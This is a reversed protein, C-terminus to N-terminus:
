DPWITRRSLVAGDFLLSLVAITHWIKTRKRPMNKMPKIHMEHQKEKGV